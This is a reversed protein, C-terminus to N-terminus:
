TNGKNKKQTKLSHALQQLYAVIRADMVTVSPPVSIHTLALNLLGNIGAAVLQDAVQQAAAPPVAIVGIDVKDCCIIKDMEEMSHIMLQGLKKGIKQNDNDFVCCIKFGHRPFDEHLALARGLNGAGVIVISWSSDAGLIDRLAQELGSIKYGRKTQGSFDLHSLDQRVSSPNMDLAEALERSSTWEAGNLKLMRVQALYRTLRNLAPPPIHPKINKKM